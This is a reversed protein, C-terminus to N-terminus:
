GAASLAEGDEGGGRRGQRQMLREGGARPGSAQPDDGEERCPTRSRQHSEAFLGGGENRKSIFM